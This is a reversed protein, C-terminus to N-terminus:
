DLSYPLPLHALPEGDIFLEVDAAVQKVPLVASLEFQGPKSTAAIVVQGVTNGDSDTLASGPTPLGNSISGSLRYLRRSPKGLYHMRAVVEQGPFCGKKFSVGDIRELNVQQPVFAETTAAVIWPEGARILQLQWNEMDLAGGAATLTESMAQAAAADSLLLTVADGPWGIAFGGSCPAIGGAAPREEVVGCRRVADGALGILTYQDSIADIQVKSRLVFMRLRRIVTDVLSSDTILLFSGDADRLVRFLGFLRGKANCYGALRLTDHSLTEVDHTLQSQLFATADPGSVRIVALDLTTASHGAANEAPERSASTQDSM